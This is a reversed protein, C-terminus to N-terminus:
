MFDFTINAKLNTLNTLLCPLYHRIGLNALVYHIKSLGWKYLLQAARSIFSYKAEYLSPINFCRTLADM